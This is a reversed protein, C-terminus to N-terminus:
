ESFGERWREVVGRCRRGLRARLNFLENVTLGEAQALASINTQEFLLENWLRQAVAYLPDDDMAVVVKFIERKLQRLMVLDDVAPDPAVLSDQQFQSQSLYYVQQTSLNPMDAHQQNFGMGGRKLANTARRWQLVARRTIQYIYTSLRAEFRFQDLNQIVDAYACVDPSRDDLYLDDVGLVHRQKLCHMIYQYVQHCVAEHEPHLPDLAAQVTAYDHWLNITIDTLTANTAHQSYHALLKALHNHQKPTLNWDQAIAVTAVLTLYQKHSNM